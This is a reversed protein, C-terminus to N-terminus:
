GNQAKQDAVAQLTRVLKQPVGQIAYMLNRLPGNMVSMLQAILENKTPLASFAKVQDGDFIQGDIMGGKLELPAHGAFDVLVEAATGAEETTLAVATPGVLQSSMEPYELEALAIKAFRNKIVKFSAGTERLQNRLETIQAVNLGRYDALIFDKAGEFSEKLEAVADLKYKQLKTTYEAM